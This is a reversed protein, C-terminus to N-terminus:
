EVLSLHLGYHYDRLTRLDRYVDAPFGMRKGRHDVLLEDFYARCAAPKTWELALFNAIRPYQTVLAMPYVAKPLRKLWEISMPLMYNVPKAKRLLSWDLSSDQAAPPLRAPKRTGVRRVPQTVDDDNFPREFRSQYISM